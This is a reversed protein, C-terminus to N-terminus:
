TECHSDTSVLQLKHALRRQKQLALRRKESIVVHNLQQDSRWSSLSSAPPSSAPNLPHLTTVDRIDQQRASVRRVLTPLQARASVAGNNDPALSKNNNISDAPLVQRVSGDYDDDSTDVYLNDAAENAGTSESQIQNDDDDLRTLQSSLNAASVAPQLLLEATNSIIDDNDGGDDAVAKVCVCM